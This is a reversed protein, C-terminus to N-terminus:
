SLMLVRIIGFLEEARNDDQPVGKGAVTLLIVCACRKRNIRCIGHIEKHGRYETHM